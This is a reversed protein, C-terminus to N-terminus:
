SRSPRRRHKQWALAFLLDSLRNLYAAALSSRRKARLACVAREARRVMARALDLAAEAPTDGFLVFDKPAGVAKEVRLVEKEIAATAADFDFVPKRGRQSAVTAACAHLGRRCELLIKRTSASKSMARALGVAAAAEDIAGLAEVQPSTKSVHGGRM